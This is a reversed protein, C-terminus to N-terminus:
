PCQNVFSQLRPGKIEWLFRSWSGGGNKSHQGAGLSGDLMKATYPQEITQLQAALHIGEGTSLTGSM